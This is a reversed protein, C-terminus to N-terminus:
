EKSQKSCWACGKAGRRWDRCLSRRGDVSRQGGEVNCETGDHAETGVGVAQVKGSIAGEADHRHLLSDGSHRARTRRAVPLDDLHADCCPGFLAGRAQTSIHHGKWYM